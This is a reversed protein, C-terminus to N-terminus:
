PRGRPRPRKAQPNEVGKFLATGGADDIMKEAIANLEATTVGPRAAEKMRSLVRYVVRGAQRILDIERDSKLIIGRGSALRYM